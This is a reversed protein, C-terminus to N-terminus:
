PPTRDALAHVSVAVTSKQRLGSDAVTKPSLSLASGNHILSFAEPSLSTRNSIEAYLDAMSKTGDIALTFMKGDCGRVDIHIVPTELVEGSEQKLHPYPPFNEPRCLNKDHRGEQQGCTLCFKSKRCSQCWIFACHLEKLNVHYLAGCEERPCHRFICGAAM